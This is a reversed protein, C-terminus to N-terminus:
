LKGENTSLNGTGIKEEKKEANEQGKKQKNPVTKAFFLSKIIAEYEAYALSLYYKATKEVRDDPKAILSCEKDRFM